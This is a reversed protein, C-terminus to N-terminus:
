SLQTDAPVAKPDRDENQLSSQFHQREKHLIKLISTTQTRLNDMETQLKQETGDWKSKSQGVEKRLEDLDEKWNCPLKTSM